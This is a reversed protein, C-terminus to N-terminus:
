RPFSHVVTIQRIQRSKPELCRITVQIGRLAAGAAPAGGDQHNTNFSGDAYPAVPDTLTKVDFALVNTLIVDEGERGGQLTRPEAALTWFRNAPNTLDALSNAIGNGRYSIDHLTRDAAAQIRREYSGAGPTAAVLLQRRHLTYLNQGAFTQDSPRCFWAIEAVPSELGSNGPIRGAFPGGLSTVTMTLVDDTDGILANATNAPGEQAQFYGASAEPRLWPKVPATVGHLDQRLQWATRRIRANAEILAQTSRVGNGFVGFLTAVAAMVMLAMTAAVLLETLTFGRRSGAGPRPGPSPPTPPPSSPMM